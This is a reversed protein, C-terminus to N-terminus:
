KKLEKRFSQEDGMKDKRSRWTWMKGGDGLFAM